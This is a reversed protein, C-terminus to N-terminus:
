FYEYNEKEMEIWTNWYDRGTAGAGIPDISYFQAILEFKRPNEENELYFTMCELLKAFSSFIIPSLGALDDHYEHDYVRIPYDDHSYTDRVDFVLPGTDNGESAFPILGKSVLQEAYKIEDIVSKLPQTPLSGPLRILSCDCDVFFKRSHWRIFAAPLKVNFKETTKNYFEFNFTGPIMKWIFWGSENVPSDMMEAPIKKTYVCHNNCNALATFFNDIIRNLM